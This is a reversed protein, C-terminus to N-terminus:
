KMSSIPRTTALLNKNAIWQFFIPDTDSLTAVSVESNDAVRRVRLRWSISKLENPRGASVYSALRGDSSWSLATISALTKFLVRTHSGDPRIGYYVCRHLDEGCNKFSIEDTGPVWSANGGAAIETKQKTYVNYTVVTQKRPQNRTYVILTDDTSWCQPQVFSDRDGITESKGTQSDVVELGGAPGGFLAFKSSGQSWCIGLSPSAIEPFARFDSGDIMATGLDSPGDCNTEPEQSPQIDTLQGCSDFAARTGDPSITGYRFSLNKLATPALNLSHKTFDVTYVKNRLISILTLGDDKQRNSLEGALTENSSGAHGPCSAACAGGFTLSMSQTPNPGAMALVFICMGILCLGQTANAPPNVRRM